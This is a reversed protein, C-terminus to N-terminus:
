ASKEEEGMGHLQFNLKKKIFWTEEEGNLYVAQIGALARSGSKSWSMGNHKQRQAVTMDNAKEVPNSSNRLGLEKRVAYCPIYSYNKDLYQILKTLWSQSKVDASDLHRLYDTAYETNGVWLYKLLQESVQNRLERGRMASSLYERCKKELHYWDLIITYPRYPFLAELNSRINRAGDTFFVLCKDQMLGNSLLFATLLRLTHFMGIGTLIYSGEQHAIHVVTNEVYKTERVSDPGRSDKQRTVGIDDVSVYTTQGSVEFTDHIRAADAKEQGTKFQNYREIADFVKEESICATDPHSLDKSPLSVPLGNEPNFGYAKLVGAAYCEQFKQLQEGERVMSDSLTKLCVATGDKKRRLFRNLLDTAHRYSVLSCLRTSLEKYSLSM